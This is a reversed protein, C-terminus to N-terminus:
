FSIFSRISFPSYFDLYFLSTFTWISFPFLLGFLLHFTFSRVFFGNKLDRHLIAILFLYHFIGGRRSLRRRRVRREGGGRQADAELLDRGGHAHVAPGRAHAPVRLRPCRLPDQVHRGRRLAAPQRAQGGHDGALHAELGPLKPLRYEFLIKTFIRCDIKPFNLKGKAIRYMLDMLMEPDDHYEKM